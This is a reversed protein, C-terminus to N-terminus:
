ELQSELLGKFTTTVGSMRRRLPGFLILSVCSPVRKPHNGDGVDRLAVHIKGRLCFFSANQDKSLLRRYTSVLRDLQIIMWSVFPSKCCM